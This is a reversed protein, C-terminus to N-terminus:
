VVIYINNMYGSLIKQAKEIEDSDYIFNEYDYSPSIRLLHCPINKDVFSLFKGAKHVFSELDADLSYLPLSIEIHVGYDYAEKIRDKLVYNNTRTIMQFSDYDGKWDINMADTVKCIEKWPDRNVFANTKLVFQLGNLASEEAVALLYEYSLIPENYSLSVSKCHKEIAIEILKSPSIVQSNETPSKQSIEHNECYQCNLNCGFSGISLTKTDELFHNFPKKGIPDVALSSVAGLKIHSIKEGDSFRAYCKGTQDKKLVCFHPCLNCKLGRKAKEFLDM